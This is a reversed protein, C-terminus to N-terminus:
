MSPRPFDRISRQPTWAHIKEVKATKQDNIRRLILDSLQIRHCLCGLLFSPASFTDFNQFVLRIVLIRQQLPLRGWPLIRMFDVMKLPIRDLDPNRHSYHHVTIATLYWSPDPWQRWLTRQLKVLFGPIRIRIAPCFERYQMRSADDQKSQTHLYGNKDMSDLSCSPSSKGWEPIGVHQLDHHIVWHLDYIIIRNQTHQKTEKIQSASIWPRKNWYLSFIKFPQNITGTVIM